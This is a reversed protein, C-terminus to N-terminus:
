RGSAERVAVHHVIKEGAGGHHTGRV